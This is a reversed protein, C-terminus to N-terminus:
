QITNKSDPEQTLSAARERRSIYLCIGWLAACLLLESGITTLVAGTIGFSPLFIFNAGVNLLAVVIQIFTRSGQYDSGTLADAACFTLGRILLIVALMRVITVSDEYGEGLLVPAVPACVYLLAGGAIGYGLVMPLITRVFKMSGLLGNAGTRNLHPFSAAAVARLPAYAM